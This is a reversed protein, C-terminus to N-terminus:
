TMTEAIREGREEREGREREGEGREGEPWSAIEHTHLRGREGSGRFKNGKEAEEGRGM